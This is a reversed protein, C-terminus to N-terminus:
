PAPEQAPITSAPLPRTPHGTLRGGAVVAVQDALTAVVGPDHSIVVLTLGRARALRRLHGLVVAQTLTDLGSTIEDCILVDPEALLARALAARQLEGGSLEGPRRRAVGPP